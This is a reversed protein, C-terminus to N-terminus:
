VQYTCCMTRVSWYFEKRGLSCRGRSYGQIRWQYPPWGDRRGRDLRRIPVSVDFASPALCGVIPSAGGAPNTASGRSAVAFAKQANLLLFQLLIFCIFYLVAFTFSLLKMLKVTQYTKRSFYSETHSIHMCCKPM